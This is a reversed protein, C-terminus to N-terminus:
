FLPDLHALQLPPSAVVYGRMPQRKISMASKGSAAEAEQRCRVSRINCTNHFLFYDPSIKCFTVSASDCIQEQDQRLFESALKWTRQAWEGKFQMCVFQM